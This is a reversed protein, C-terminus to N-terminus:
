SFLHKTAEQLFVLSIQNTSMLDTFTSNFVLSQLHFARNLLVLWTPHLISRERSLASSSMTRLGDSGCGPTCELSTECTSLQWLFMSELVPSSSPERQLPPDPGSSKQNSWTLSHVKRYIFARTAPSTVWYNLSSAARGLTKLKSGLVRLLGSM